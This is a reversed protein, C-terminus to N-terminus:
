KRNNFFDVVNSPTETTKDDETEKIDQKLQNQIVQQKTIDDDNNNIQQTQVALGAVVNKNDDLLQKDEKNKIVFFGVILGFLVAIGELVYRIYKM